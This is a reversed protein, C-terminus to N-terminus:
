INNQRKQSLNTDVRRVYFVEEATIYEGNVRDFGVIIRDPTYALREEATLEYVWKLPKEM